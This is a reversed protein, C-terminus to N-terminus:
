IVEIGAKSFTENVIEEATRKDVPKPHIIDRYQMTLKKDDAYYYMWDTVYYRFAEDEAQQRIKTPLLYIIATARIHTPM